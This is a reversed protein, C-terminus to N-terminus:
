PLAGLDPFGEYGESLAVKARALCESEDVLHIGVARAVSLAKGLQCSPKGNELDVIFRRGVNVSLALAEQSLGLRQRRERIARGFQASDSVMKGSWRSNRIPFM